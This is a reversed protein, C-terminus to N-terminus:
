FFRPDVNRPPGDGVFFGNVHLKYNRKASVHIVASLYQRDLTFSKRAYVFPKKFGQKETRGIWDAEWRKCRQTTSFDGAGKVFPLNLTDHVATQAYLTSVLSLVALAWSMKMLQKKM